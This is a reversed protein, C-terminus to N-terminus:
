TDEGYRLWGAERLKPEPEGGDDTFWLGRYPLAGPERARVSEAIRETPDIQWGVLEVHVEGDSRWYIRRVTAEGGEEDDERHIQEGLRSADEEDDERDHWLYIRSGQTPLYPTIMRRTYLAGSSGMWGGASEDDRHLTIWLTLSPIM